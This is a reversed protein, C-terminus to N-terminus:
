SSSLAASCKLGVRHDLAEARRQGAPARRGLLGLLRFFLRLRRRLLLSFLLVVAVIGEALVPVAADRDPVRRRARRRDDALLALM